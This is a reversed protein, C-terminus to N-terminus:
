TKLRRYLDSATELFQDIDQSSTSHGISVRITGFAVDGPVGMAELIRRGKTMSRASATQSCASGTSVAIDADSLARALVEGSLGPFALSTIWPSYRPDAPQRCQPVPSTGPISKMGLLLHDMRNRANIFTSSLDIQAKRAVEAFAIAGFLNETGSRMGKEQGGGQALVEMKARYALAGIGKPGGLKHASFAASTLGTRPLALPIKGLAQIYDVHLRPTRFNGSLAWSVIRSATEDIRQIAGTENNVAMLCVLRTSPRLAAIIRDPSVIGDAESPIYSLEVGIKELVKAQAHIASHEISSVIIHPTTGRIPRSLLALLPIQDAETGSGTFAIEMRAPNSATTSDTRFLSDGLSNRASELLARAGSGYGHSSSSNGFAVNATKLANELVMADPVATAAWDLYIM